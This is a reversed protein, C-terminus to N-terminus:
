AKCGDKIKFKLQQELIFCQCFFTRPNLLIRQPNEFFKLFLIKKSVFKQFESWKGPTLCKPSEIPKATKVNILYLFFVFVSLCLIYVYNFFM